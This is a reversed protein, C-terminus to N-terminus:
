NKNGKKRYFYQNTCPINEGFQENKAINRRAIEGNAQIQIGLYKFEELAELQEENIRIEINRKSKGM